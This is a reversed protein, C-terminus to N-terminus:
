ILTFSSFSKTNSPFLHKQPFTLIAKKYLNDNQWLLVIGKPHQNGTQAVAKVSTVVVDRVQTTHFQLFLTQTNSLLHTIMFKSFFPTLAPM